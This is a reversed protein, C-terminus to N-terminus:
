TYYSCLHQVYVLQKSSQVIKFSIGNSDNECSDLQRVSGFELFTNLQFLNLHLTQLSAIRFGLVSNIVQYASIDGHTRAKVVDEKM